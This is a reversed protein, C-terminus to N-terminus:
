TNWHSLCITTNWHSQSVSIHTETHQLSLKQDNWHSAFIIYHIETHHFSLQTNWHSSFLTMHKQTINDHTIWLNIHKLTIFFSNRKKFHSLSIIKHKLTITLHTKATSLGDCLPVQQLHWSPRPVDGTQTTAHTLMRQVTVAGAEYAVVTDVALQIVGPIESTGTHASLIRLIRLSGCWAGNLRMIWDGGWETRM